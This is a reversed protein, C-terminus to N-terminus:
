KRRGLVFSILVALFAFAFTWVFVRLFPDRVLPNHLIKDFNAWGVNTKWGPELEEGSRATFSGKGNDTFVLGDEIRTFQDRVPQYRLTPALEVATDLGEPRIAASGTTPVTFATLDRDIAVLEPGKITTYGEAGVIGLDDVEVSSKEIPILEETTGVFTNGTDEDVLLLVLEGDADRAPTMLYSKGDPPPALSNGQIGVIAEDKSLIHGTSYNTFAVNVTYFIPIVQFALMLLTGPILFKLPLAWTRRSLYALDILITTIALVAVAPWKGEDALVIAAWVAIGNMLALLLIKIALGVPGSFFPAARSPLAM